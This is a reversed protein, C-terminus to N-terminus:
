LHRWLSCGAVSTISSMFIKFNFNQLTSIKPTSMRPTSMGLSVWFHLLVVNRNLHPHINGSFHVPTRMCKMYLYGWYTFPLAQSSGSHLMLLRLLSAELQLVYQVKKNTMAAVFRGDVALHECVMCILCASTLTFGTDWHIDYRVTFITGWLSYQVGM